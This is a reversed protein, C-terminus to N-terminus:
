IAAGDRVMGSELEEIIESWKKLWGAYTAADLSRITGVDVRQVVLRALKRYVSSLYSKPASEIVTQGGYEGASVMLSHPVSVIPKTGAERSFDDVLSASFPGSMNNAIVGGFSGPHGGEQGLAALFRNLTPLSAFDASAVVFIRTPEGATALFPLVTEPDGSIDHVVFDPSIRSIPELRRVMAFNSADDV